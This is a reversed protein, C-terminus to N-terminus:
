PTDGSSRLEISSTGFPPMGSGFPSRVIHAITQNGLLRAAARQLQMRIRVPRGPWRPDDVLTVETVSGVEVDRLKVPSGATTGFGEEAVATLVYGARFMDLLGTTRVSVFLVIVLLAMAIAIFVGTITEIRTIPTRM